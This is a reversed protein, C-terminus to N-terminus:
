PSYHSFRFLPFTYPASRLNRWPRLDGGGSGHCHVGLQVGGEGMGGGGADGGIGEVGAGGGELPAGGVGVREAADGCVREGGARGRELLPIGWHTHGGRLLVPLLLPHKPECFARCTPLMCKNYDVAM